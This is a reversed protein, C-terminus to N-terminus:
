KNPSIALYGEENAQILVERLNAKFEKVDEEKLM